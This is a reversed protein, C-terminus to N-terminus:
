CVLVLLLVSFMVCWLWTPHVGPNYLSFHLRETTDSEKCGWPSYGVLSRQGHSKYPHNLNYLDIIHNLVHISHFIAIINYSLWLLHVSLVPFFEVDMWSLFFFFVRLLDPVSPVHRLMLIAMCSWGVTLMVSLPWFHFARGRLDPVLHPHRSEGRRSLM